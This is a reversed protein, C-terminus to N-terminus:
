QVISYRAILLEAASVQNHIAALHLPTQSSRTLANISQPHHDLLLTIVKVLGYRAALHLPTARDGIVTTQRHRGKKSKQKAIKVQSPDAGYELLVKVIEPEQNKM